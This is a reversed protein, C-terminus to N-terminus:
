KLQYYKYALVCAGALLHFGFAVTVQKKDQETIPDPPIIKEKICAPLRSYTGTTLVDIACPLSFCPLRAQLLTNKAMLFLKDATDVFFMNHRDLFESMAVCKDVKSASNAWKVLALLRVFLQQTRKAFIAIEIKRDMDSKRPLLESLVTLDHYTKQVIFDILTSLPITSGFMVNSMAM